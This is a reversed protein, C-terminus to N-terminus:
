ENGYLAFKRIVCIFFANCTVHSARRIIPRYTRTCGKRSKLGGAILNDNMCRSDPVKNKSRRRFSLPTVRRLVVLISPSYSLLVSPPPLSPVSPATAPPRCLPPCPHCVSRGADALLDYYIKRVRSERRGREGKATAAAGRYPAGRGGGSTKRETLRPCALCAALRVCTRVRVRETENVLSVSRRPTWPRRCHYTFHDVLSTHHRRRRRRRRYSHRAHSGFACIYAYIMRIHICIHGRNYHKFLYVNHLATCYSLM